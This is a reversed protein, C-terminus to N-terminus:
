FLNNWYKFFILVQGITPKLQEDFWWQANTYLIYLDFVFILADPDRELIYRSYVTYMTAARARVCVLM